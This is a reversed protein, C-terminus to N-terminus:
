SNNSNPWPTTNEKTCHNPRFPAKLLGGFLARVANCREAWDYAKDHHDVYCLLLSAATKHVIMRIDNSVRVSWFNKDKAKDLKHFSMGPNAPNLQLDFATTKVAKQEEGTLKALSDTFTDAIRFDM